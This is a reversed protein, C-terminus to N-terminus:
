IFNNDNFFSSFFSTGCWQTWTLSFLLPGGSLHLLSCAGVRWPGRWWVTCVGGGPRWATSDLKVDHMTRTRNNKKDRWDKRVHRTVPTKVSSWLSTIDRSCAQCKWGATSPPPAPVSRLWWINHFRSTGESLIPVYRKLTSITGAQTKVQQKTHTKHLFLQLLKEQLERRLFHLRSPPLLDSILQPIPCGLLHGGTGRYLGESVMWRWKSNKLIYSQYMM